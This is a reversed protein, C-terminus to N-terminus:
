CGPEFPGMMASARWSDGIRVYRRVMIRHKIGERLLEVENFSHRETVQASGLSGCPEHLTTLRATSRSPHQRLSAAIRHQVEASADVPRGGPQESRPLLRTSGM